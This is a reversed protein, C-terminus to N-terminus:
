KLIRYAIPYNQSAISAYKGTCTGLADCGFGLWKRALDIAQKENYNNDITILKDLMLGRIVEIQKDPENLFETISYSVNARQSAIQFEPYNMIQTLGLARRGNGTDIGIAGWKGVSSEIPHLMLIMAGTHRNIKGNNIAEQIPRVVDLSPTFNKGSADKMPSLIINSEETEQDEITAVLTEVQIGDKKERNDLFTTKSLDAFQYRYNNLQYVTWDLHPGTTNGSNGLEGIKDGAKVQQNPQVSINNLHNYDQYCETKETTGQTPTYNVEYKITVQLGAGQLHGVGTRVVVADTTAFVPDGIQGSFDPGINYQKTDGRSKSLTSINGFFGAVDRLGAPSNMRGSTTPKSLGFTCIPDSFVDAWEKGGWEVSDIKYPQYGKVIQNVRKITAKQKTQTNYIQASFVVSMIIVVALFIFYNRIIQLTM